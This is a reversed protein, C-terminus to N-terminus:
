QKKFPRNRELWALAAERQGKAFGSLHESQPDLFSALALEREAGDKTHKAEFAYAWSWPWIERQRRALDVLLQRYRDDGTWAQLKECAELLQYLPSVTAEALPPSAVHAQWLTQLARAHDGSMGQLYAAALLTYFDRGLKEQSSGLLARAQDMKGSRALSAVAYPLAPASIARVSESKAAAQAALGVFAEAAHAFDARQFANYGVIWSHHLADGNKETSALLFQVTKDSVSRDVLLANFLFHDRLSNEAVSNGSLAKWRRAFGILEDEPTAAIRHGVLAASWPRIDEIQKSGEFFARFGDDSEGILFSARAAHTIGWPDKYREYLQRGWDRAQAWHGALEALRLQSRMGAASEAAYQASLQYLMRSLTPEGVYLLLDGGANAQAALAPLNANSSRFLPFALLTRQAQEPHRAVLQARALRYYANWEEPQSGIGQELIAVYGATDGSEEALSLLFNERESNGIFREQAQAAVQQAERAHGDRRLAQYADLLYRFGYQSYAVMRLQHALNRQATAPDSTTDDASGEQPLAPQWARPPEDLYAIGTPVKTASQVNRIVETEGGEWAILDRRLRREREDLLPDPETLAQQRYRLAWVVGAALPPYGAFSPGLERSFEVLSEAQGRRSVVELAPNAIALRNAGYLADYYDWEALRDFARQARWGAARMRWLPAYSREVAVARRSLDSSVFLDHSVYAALTSLPVALPDDTTAVGLTTLQQQVLEHGTPQFWQEGSLVAYLLPAYAPYQKLLADRRENSGASRGYRMRAEEVELEGILRVTPDTLQPLLPEAQALNGQALAYVARAETSHLGRLLQVAYPRRYLHLVARAQTVRANEDGADADRLAILSREWLHEGAVDVHAYTLALLQLRRAREVASGPDAALETPSQPFARPAAPAEREKAGSAPLGLQAILDPLAPAFAAEPPLEDSFAIPGVQASQAQAWTGKGAGRAFLALTVAYAHQEPDLAVTGRVLWSAGAAEGLKWAQTGRIERTSEGLARAVLTPDTVCLGTQAQIQAAIERTILSRAPRDLSAAIEGAAAPTAELPVVLVECGSARLVESFLARRRDIWGSSRASDGTMSVVTSVIQEHMFWAALGTVAGLVIGLAAHSLVPRLALSLNGGGRQAAFLTELFSLLALMAVLPLIGAAVFLVIAVFPAVLSPTGATFETYPAAVWAAAACALLGALLLRVAPNTNLNAAYAVRESFAWALTGLIAGGMAHLTLQRYLHGDYDVALLWATGASLVSYGLATLLFGWPLHFRLAM